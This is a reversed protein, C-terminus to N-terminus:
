IMPINVLTVLISIRPVYPVLAVYVEPNSLTTSSCRMKVGAGTAVVRDAVDPLGPSTMVMVPVPKSTVGDFLM